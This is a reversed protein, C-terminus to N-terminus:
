AKVHRGALQWAFLQLGPITDGPVLGWYATARGVAQRRSLARLLGVACGLRKCARFRGVVTTTRNLADAIAAAGWRLAVATAARLLLVALSGTVTTIGRGGRSCCGTSCLFGVLTHGCENSLRHQRRVVADVARKEQFM